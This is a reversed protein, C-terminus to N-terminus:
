KSSVPHANGAMCTPGPNIWMGSNVPKRAMPSSGNQQLTAAGTICAYFSVRYDSRGYRRPQWGLNFNLRRTACAPCFQPSSKSDPGPTDSERAPAPSRSQNSPTAARWALTAWFCKSNAASSLRKPLPCRLNVDREWDLVNHLLLTTKDGPYRIFV